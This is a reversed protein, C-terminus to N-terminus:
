ISKKNFFLKKQFDTTYEKYIRNSVSKTNAQVAEPKKM